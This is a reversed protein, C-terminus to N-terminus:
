GSLSHLSDTTPAAPAMVTQRLSDPQHQLLCIAPRRGAGQLRGGDCRSALGAPLLSQPRSPLFELGTLSACPRRFCRSGPRISCKDQGYITVPYYLM